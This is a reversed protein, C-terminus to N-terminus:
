LAPLLRILHGTLESKIRQLMDSFCTARAYCHVQRDPEDADPNVQSYPLTWHAYARPNEPREEAQSELEVVPRSYHTRRQIFEKPHADMYGFLADASSSFSLLQPDVYGFSLYTIFSRYSPPDSTAEPRKWGALENSCFEMLPKDRLRNAIEFADAISKSLPQTGDHIQSILKTVSSSASGELELDQQAEALQPPLIAQCLTALGLEYKTRFDAYRKTRILSPVECDALLVPLVITRGASVETWYADKWEREVWGSAVAAPSLVVIIYDSSSLGEQISSIICDGVKIQWEDLWPSHGLTRLDEFLRRVFAKDVSSHSIFIRAM